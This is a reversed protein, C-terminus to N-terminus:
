LILLENMTEIDIDEFLKGEVVSLEQVSDRSPLKMVRTAFGTPDDLLSFISSTRHDYGMDSNVNEVVDIAQSADQIHNQWYTFIKIVHARNSKSMYGLQRWFKNVIQDEFIDRNSRKSWFINIMEIASLKPMIDADEELCMKNSYFVNPLGTDTLKLDIRDSLPKNGFFISPTGWNMKGDMFPYFVGPFFYYIYPTQVYFIREYKKSQKFGSWRIKKIGPPECLVLRASKTKNTQLGYNRDYNQNSTEWSVHLMELSM